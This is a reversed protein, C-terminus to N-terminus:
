EEGSTVLWATIRKVANSLSKDEDLVQSIWAWLVVMPTYLVQRYSVGQEELVQVIEGESLVQAFPLGVSQHYQQKLIEAPNSM